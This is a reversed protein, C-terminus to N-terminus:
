CGFTANLHNYKKNSLHIATPSKGLEIREKKREARAESLLMIYLMLSLPLQPTAL